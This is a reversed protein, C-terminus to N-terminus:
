SRPPPGRAPLPAAVLAAHRAAPISQLLHGLPSVPEAVVAAVPPPAGAVLCMPCDLMTGADSVEGDASKVLTKLGAASCIQEFSKPAIFPSLVAVVVSMVYAVLLRRAVVASAYRNMM